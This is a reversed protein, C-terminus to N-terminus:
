SLFMSKKALKRHVISKVIYMGTEEDSSCIKRKRRSHPETETVNAAEIWKKAKAFYIEGGQLSLTLIDRRM